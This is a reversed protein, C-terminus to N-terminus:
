PLVGKAVADAVSVGFARASGARKVSGADVHGIDVPEQPDWGQALREELRATLARTFAPVEDAPIGHLDLHEIHLEVRPEVAM